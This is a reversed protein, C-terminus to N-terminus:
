ACSDGGLVKGAAVVGEVDGSWVACLVVWGDDGWDVAGATEVLVRVVHGAAVDARGLANRCVDDLIGVLEFQPVLNIHGSLCAAPIVVVPM